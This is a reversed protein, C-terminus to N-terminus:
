ALHFRSAMLDVLGHRCIILPDLTDAFALESHDLPPRCHNKKAFSSPPIDTTRAKFSGRFLFTLFLLNETRMAFARRSLLAGTNSPCDHPKRGERSDLVVNSM